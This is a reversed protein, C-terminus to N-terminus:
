PADISVVEHLLNVEKLKPRWLKREGRAGYKGWGLLFLRGVFLWDSLPSDPTLLTMLKAERAALNSVTTTQVLAIWKKSHVLVDGWHHVDVRRKAQAIWREVPAAHFGQGRFYVLTRATPSMSYRSWRRATTERGKRKSM